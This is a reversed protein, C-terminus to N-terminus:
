YGRQKPQASGTQGGRAPQPNTPRFADNVFRSVPDQTQMAKIEEPTLEVEGQPTIKFWKNGRQVIKPKSPEPQPPAAGGSKLLSDLEQKLPTNGKPEQTPQQAQNPQSKGGGSLGMMNVGGSPAIARVTFAPIKKNDFPNLGSGTDEITGQDFYVNLGMAQAEQQMMQAQEQSMPQGTMSGDVGSTIGYKGMLNQIAVSDKYKRSAANESTGKNKLIDLREKELGIRKDQYAKTDQRKQMSQKAQAMASAWNRRTFAMGDLIENPANQILAKKEEDSLKPHTMIAQRGTVEENLFQERQAKAIDLKQQGEMQGIKADLQAGQLGLNTMQEDHAMRRDTISGVRNALRDISRSVLGYDVM